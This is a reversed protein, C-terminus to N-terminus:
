RVASEPRESIIVGPIERVGNTIAARIAAEDIKLYQRPILAPDVIDFGWKLKMALSGNETAVTREPDSAPPATIPTPAARGLARAKRQREQEEAIRKQDAERRENEKVMWYKEAERRLREEQGLAEEGLRKFIAIVGKKSKELPATYYARLDELFKRAKTLNVVAEAARANSAEDKITIAAAINSQEEAYHRVVEIEKLKDLAETTLKLDYAGKVAASPLLEQTKTRVPLKITM